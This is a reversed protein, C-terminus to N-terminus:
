AAHDGRQPPPPMARGIWVHNLALYVVMLAITRAGFFSWLYGVVFGGPVVFVFLKAAVALQVVSARAISQMVWAMVIGLVLHAASGILILGILGTTMMLYLFLSFVYGTGQLAAVYAIESPAYRQMVYYLGFRPGVEVPNQATPRLWTSIDALIPDAELKFMEMHNRDALWWLEGQNTMRDMLRKLAIDPNENVGYVALVLPVTIAAIIAPIKFMASKPLGGDRAIVYLGRPLVALILMLAISTFKESYLASVVFIAAILLVSLTRCAPALAFTALLIILIFRNGFFSVFVSNQLDIRYRFRDVGEILPFGNQLGINIIYGLMLVTVAVLLTFGWTTSIRDPLTLMHPRVKRWASEIVGSALSFFLVYLACLRTFAGTPEGYMALENIYFGYEIAIGSLFETMRLFLLPALLVFSAPRLILLTICFAAFSLFALVAWFGNPVIVALMSFLISLTIIAGSVTHFGRHIM